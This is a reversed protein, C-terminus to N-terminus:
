IQLVKNPIVVVNEISLKEKKAKKYDYKCNHKFFPLCENCFFEDCKCKNFAFNKIKRSCIPCKM